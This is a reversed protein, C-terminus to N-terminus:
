APELPSEELGASVRCSITGGPHRFRLEAGVLAVREGLASLASVGANDLATLGGVDVVVHDFEGPTLQDFQSRLAIVSGADLSGRLGLVWTSGVSSCTITLRDVPTGARKIPRRRNVWPWRDGGSWGIAVNKGRLALHREDPGVRRILV